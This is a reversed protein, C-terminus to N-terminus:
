LYDKGGDEAEPVWEDTKRSRDIYKGKRFM